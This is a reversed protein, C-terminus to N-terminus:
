EEKNEGIEERLKKAAELMALGIAEVSDAATSNPYLHMNSTMVISGGAVGRNSLQLCYHPETVGELELEQRYVRVTVIRLPSELISEFLTEEEGNTFM